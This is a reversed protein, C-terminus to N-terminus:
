TDQLVNANEAMCIRLGNHGSGLIAGVDTRRVRTIDIIIVFNEHNESKNVHAFYM